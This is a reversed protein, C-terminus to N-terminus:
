RKLVEKSAAEIFSIMLPKKEGKQERLWKVYGRLQDTPIDKLLKNKYKGFPIPLTPDFTDTQPTSTKQKSGGSGSDMDPDVGDDIALLGCMAYKRAYSSTAGTLQSPDMGKKSDGERAWGQASIEQDGQVLKATACIYYREGKCVIDDTIVISVGEPLIEKVSELIDEANRYKYKGFTNTREKPCHLDKQIKHLQERLSM